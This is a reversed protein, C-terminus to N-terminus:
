LRVSTLGSPKGVLPAAPKVPAAITPDATPPVDADEAVPAGSDDDAAGILEAISSPAPTKRGPKQPPRPIAAALAIPTSKAAAQTKAPEALSPLALVAASALM